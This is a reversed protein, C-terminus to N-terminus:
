QELEKLPNNNGGTMNLMGEINGSAAVMEPTNGLVGMVSLEEDSPFMPRPPPQPPQPMQPMPPMQQAQPQPQLQPMPPPAIAAQLKKVMEAGVVQLMDPSDLLREILIRKEEAEPSDSALGYAQQFFDMFTQKSIRGQGALNSMMTIMAIEDRPFNSSMKVVVRVSEGIDDARVRSEVFGGYRNTGYASWGKSGAWERTLGLVHELLRRLATEREHQAGALRLMFVTSQGSISAGSNNVYGGTMVEPTGLRALVKAMQESVTILHNGPPTEYVTQVSAGQEIPNIADASYDLGNEAIVKSTTTKAPFTARYSASLFLSMVQNSVQIAGDAKDYGDGGLLGYLSSTWRKGEIGTSVGGWLFYPITQYGPMVTPRKAWTVEDDDDSQEDIFVCHIIERVRKKKPADDLTDDANANLVSSALPVDLVSSMKKVAREAVSESQKALVIQENWYESYIVAEDLWEDYGDNDTEPRGEVFVIGFEAEIERRTRYYTEVFEAFRTQQANFRYAVNRPEISSSVLPFEDEPQEGDYWCKIGGVGLCQAKWEADWLKEYLNCRSNFGYLYTELLESRRKADRDDGVSPVSYQPPRALMMARMEEVHSYAIPLTVREEGAVRKDKWVDMRYAKEFRDMDAYTQAFNLRLADRRRKVYKGTYASLNTIAM